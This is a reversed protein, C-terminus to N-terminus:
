RPRRTPRTCSMASVERTSTWRLVPRSRSLSFIWTVTATSEWMSM